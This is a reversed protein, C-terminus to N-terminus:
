RTDDDDDLTGAVEDMGDDLELVDLLVDLIVDVVVDLVVDLVVDVVVVVDLVVDLVVDVVVEAGEGVVVQAPKHM